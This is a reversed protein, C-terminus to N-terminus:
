ADPTRPPGSEDVGPHGAGKAGPPLPTGTRELFRVVEIGMARFLSAERADLQARFLV